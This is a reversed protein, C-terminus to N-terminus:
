ALPKARVSSLPYIMSPRHIMLSVASSKIWFVVLPIALPLIIWHWYKLLRNLHHVSSLQELGRRRLSNWKKLYIAVCASVLSPSRYARGKMPAVIKWWPAAHLLLVVMVLMAQLQLGVMLHRQCVRRVFNQFRRSYAELMPIFLSSCSRDFVVMLCLKEQMCLWLVSVSM